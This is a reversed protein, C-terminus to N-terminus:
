FLTPHEPKLHANRLSLFRTVQEQTVDSGLAERLWGSNFDPKIGFCRLQKYSWSGKSSKGQDMIEQTLKM